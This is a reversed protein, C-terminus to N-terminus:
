KFRIFNYTNMYCLYKSNSMYTHTYNYDSMYFYEYLHKYLCNCNSMFKYTFM